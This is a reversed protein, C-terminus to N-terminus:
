QGTTIPENALEAPAPAAFHPQGIILLEVGFDGELPQGIFKSAIHHREAIQQALHLFAAVEVVSVDDANM